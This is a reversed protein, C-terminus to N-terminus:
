RCFCVHTRSSMDSGSMLKSSGNRRRCCRDRGTVAPDDPRAISPPECNSATTSPRGGAVDQGQEHGKGLILVADGPRAQSVLSRIAQRRDAIETVVAGSEAQAAGALVTRRIMAPDESRPNDDTVVVVDATQAAIQGMLPRKGPDRDGGCGLAVLVRGGTFERVASIARAVADPTHAYDVFAAFGAGPIPEM